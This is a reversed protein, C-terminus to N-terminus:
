CGVQTKVKDTCRARRDCVHQFIGWGKRENNIVVGTLVIIVDRCFIFLSYEKRELL